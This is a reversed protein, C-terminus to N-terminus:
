EAPAVDTVIVDVLPSTSTNGYRRCNDDDDEDTMAFNERLKQVDIHRAIEGTDLDAVPLYDTSVEFTATVKFKIRQPEPWIGGIERVLEEVDEGYTEWGAREAWRAGTQGITVKLQHLEDRMRDRQARTEVLEASPDTIRRPTTPPRPTFHSAPVHRRHAVIQGAGPSQITASLFAVCQACGTCVAWHSTCGECGCLTLSLIRNGEGSSGPGLYRYEVGDETRVPFITSIPDSM